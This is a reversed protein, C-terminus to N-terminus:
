PPGDPWPPANMFTYQQTHNHAHTDAYMHVHTETQSDKKKLGSTLSLKGFMAM